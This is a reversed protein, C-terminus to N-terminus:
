DVSRLPLPVYPRRRSGISFHGGGSLESTSVTFRDFLPPITMLSNM